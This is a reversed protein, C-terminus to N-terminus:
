TLISLKGQRNIGFTRGGQCEQSHEGKHTIDPMQVPPSSKPIMLVHVKNLWGTSAGHMERTVLYESSVLFGM